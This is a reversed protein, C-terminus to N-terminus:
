PAGGVSSSTGHHPDHHLRLDVTRRHSLGVEVIHARDREVSGQHLGSIQELALLHRDDVNGVSRPLPTMPM